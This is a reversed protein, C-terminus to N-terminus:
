MKGGKLLPKRYVSEVAAQHPGLMKCHTKAFLFHTICIFIQVPFYGVFLASIRAIWDSVWATKGGAASGPSTDHENLASNPGGARGAADRRQSKKKERRERESIPVM